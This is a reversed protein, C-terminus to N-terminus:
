LTGRVRGHYLPDYCRFRWPFRLAWVACFTEMSPAALPILLFLFLSSWWVVWDEGQEAAKGHRREELRRDWVRAPKRRTAWSLLDKAVCDPYKAVSVLSEKSLAPQQRRALLYGSPDQVAAAAPPNRV